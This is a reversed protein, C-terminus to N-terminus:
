ILQLFKDLLSMTLVAPDIIQDISRSEYKLAGNLFSRSDVGTNRYKVLASELVSRFLGEVAEIHVDETDQIHSAGHQRVHSRLFRAGNRM